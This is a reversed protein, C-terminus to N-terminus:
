NRVKNLTIILPLRNKFLISVGYLMNSSFTIPNASRVLDTVYAIVTPFLAALSQLMITGSASWLFCEIQGPTDILIYEHNASRQKVLDLVKL